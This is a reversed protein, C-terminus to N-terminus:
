GNKLFWNKQKDKIIMFMENNGIPNEENGFEKYKEKFDGELVLQYKNKDVVFNIMLTFPNILKSTPNTVIIKNGRTILKSGRTTYREGIRALLKGYWLTFRNGGFTLTTKEEM